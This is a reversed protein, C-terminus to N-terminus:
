WKQWGFMWVQQRNDSESHCKRNKNWLFQIIKRCIRFKRWMDYLFWRHPLCAGICIGSKKKQLKQDCLSSNQALKYTNIKYSNTLIKYSDLLILCCLWFYPMVSKKICIQHCKTYIIIVFCISSFSSAFINYYLTKYVHLEVKCKTELISLNVTQLFLFYIFSAHFSHYLFFVSQQRTVSCSVLSCCCSFPLTM